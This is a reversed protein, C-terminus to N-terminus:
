IGHESNYYTWILMLIFISSSWGYQKIVQNIPRWFEHGCRVPFCHSCSLNSSLHLFLALFVLSKPSSYKIFFEIYELDSGRRLLAYFSKKKCSGLIWWAEQLLKSSRLCNSPLLYTGLFCQLCFPVEGNKKKVSFKLRLSDWRGEKGMVWRRLDIDTFMTNLRQLVMLSLLCALQSM